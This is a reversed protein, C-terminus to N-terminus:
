IEVGKLLYIYNQLVHLENIEYWNGNIIFGGDFYRIDLEHHIITGGFWEFGIGELIEHTIQIPECYKISVNGIETSGNISEFSIFVWDYNIADVTAVRGFHKLKNGLRLSKSNKM